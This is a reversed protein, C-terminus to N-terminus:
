NCFLPCRSEFEHCERQCRPLTTEYYRDSGITIPTPSTQTVLETGSRQARNDPITGTQCLSPVPTSMRGSALVTLILMFETVIMWDIWHMNM